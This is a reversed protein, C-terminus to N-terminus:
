SSSSSTSSLIIITDDKGNGNGVENDNDNDSDSLQSCSSSLTKTSGRIGDDNDDDNDVYNDVTDNENTFFIENENPAARLLSQETSVVSLSLSLSSSLPLSISSHPINTYVFIQLHLLFLVLQSTFSQLVQYSLSVSVCMTQEVCNKYITIIVRWRNNQDTIGRRNTEDTTTFYYIQQSLISTHKGDRFRVCIEIM